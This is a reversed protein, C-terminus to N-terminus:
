NVEAVLCKSTWFASWCVPMKTKAQGEIGAFSYQTQIIHSLILYVTNDFGLIGEFVKEGSQIKKILNERLEEKVSRSKYGSKKLEGLTKITPM